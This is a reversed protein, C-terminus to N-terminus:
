GAMAPTEVVVNQAQAADRVPAADRTIAIVTMDDHQGFRQAAEVITAVPQMALERGRDFGFLEGKPNQAEIIGDSYFTLRSGRPLEFRVTEYRTGAKAGLPLAGLVQVEHGDLYPPLHGANAMVVSGDPFLRAALATSFSGAVRGVLRQNLNALLEAPEATYDSVGRIAGVLVSVLMAAPLGKGAVDGVVLLLSGEPAPLIQFFDGGVQQAPVYASEIAFGPVRDIQEPLIIQQVEQAAALETELHAQQQAIRVSRLVLIVALSLVFLCGDFSNGNLTFPGVRWDFITSQFRFAAGAFAPIMGLLFAGLQLYTALSVVIAPVLLIGAEQNGRRWHVALLIPLIGAILAFAPAIALLIGISSGIGSATQWSNFFIGLAALAVTVRLWLRIRMRLFALFMMAELMLNAVDFCGNVYASWSPLNHFLLYVQFPLHLTSVLFLLFIWLYERRRRQAAFLALAIIGLGLGAFQAFWEFLHDGITTLWVHDSLASEDGIVLNYPFLGPNSSVWENPSVYLRMAIVVSGTAIASDPIRKLLRAAYTYPRFPAIQGNAFLTEGNIYIEFASSLNFEELSLGTQNPAVKVHLRYWLVNPRVGAFYEKLSRKPDVRMWQSDDFDPRAYAPDDGPRVLWVMGMDTPQRLTSAEFAQAAGPLPALYVGLLAFWSWISACSSLRARRSCSM